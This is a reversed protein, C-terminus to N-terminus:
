CEGDHPTRKGCPLGIIDNSKLERRKLSGTKPDKHLYRGNIYTGNSSRDIIFVKTVSSGVHLDSRRQITFHSKSFKKYVEEPLENSKIIVDADIGKGLTVSNQVLDLFFYLLFSFHTFVHLSAGTHM